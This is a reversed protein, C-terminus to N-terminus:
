SPIREVRRVTGRRDLHYRVGSWTIRNTFVTRLLSVAHATRMFPQMAAFRMPRPVDGLLPYLMATAAEGAFFLVSAAGGLAFFSRHPSISLIAALPLWVILTGGLLAVPTALFLWARRHYAKLFMIQREFWRVGGRVSQILDDTCTVASPVMIASRGTAAVRSSLSLDDVVTRGWLGAVDLEDFDRKRIAMSGGWLGMEAVFSATSLLVYMFINISDHVMGGLKPREVYLWRFGTTVVVSQDSLPLVLERLWGAQPGIDADAFVYVEADRASRVAALLSYNKQACMTALGAVVLSARDCGRIVERIEIASSDREDEVVFLVEYSPYDLQLFTQINRAFGPTLGKCPIVLACRPAYDTRYRPRLARDYWYRKYIVSFLTAVFDAVVLVGAGVFLASTIWNAGLLVDLGMGEGPSLRAEKPV